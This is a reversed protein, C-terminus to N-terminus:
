IEEEESPNLIIFLHYYEHFALQIYNRKTEVPDTMPDTEFVMRFPIYTNEKHCLIVVEENGKPVYHKLETLPCDEYRWMLCELNYTQLLQVAETIDSIIEREM